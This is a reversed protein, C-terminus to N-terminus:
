RVIGADEVRQTATIEAFMPFFSSMPPHPPPEDSTMGHEYGREEFLRLVGPDRSAVHVPVSLAARPSRIPRQPQHDGLVVIIPDRSHDMVSGVYDTLVTFVYAISAVYGEELETGGTWTNDFLEIEDSRENYVEGDGLDEWPRIVPPIRNFPTHSSVLQYHALLPRSEAAGGPATLERIRRHASWIAYQDTVPVYSFWPGVYGFDGDHAVIAEEFRYLEWGEPWSGHVTGPRATFTYYGGEHLMRPLSPPRLDYLQLFKEQSDIWQGTLLTAEALWSYGGAVPSRLYGTRVGYGQSALADRLRDRYPEVQAALEPRAVTAYGYAEVAFIYIDRDAIGPFAYTEVPEAVGDPAVGGPADGDTEAGAEGGPRDEAPSGALELDVLELRDDEFWAVTTIRALSPPLGVALMAPLAVVTLVALAAAPARCRNLAAGVGTTIGWGAAVLLAFIAVITVPTLVDALPGIDGLLLLLGGRIMGIDTRPAFSRAFFYRFFAEAASFGSLIGVVAGSLLLGLRRRPRSGIRGVVLVLWLAALTEVVPVILRWAAGEPAWVYLSLLANLAFLVAFAIGLSQALASPRPLISRM